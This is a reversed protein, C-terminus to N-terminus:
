SFCLKACFIYVLSYLNLCANRCKLNCYFLAIQKHFSHNSGIFFSLIYTKTIVSFRFLIFVTQIKQLNKTMMQLLKKRFFLNKLFQYVYLFCFNSSKKIEIKLHCKFNLKSFFYTCIGNCLNALLLFVFCFMSLRNSHLYCLMNQVMNWLFSAIKKYIVTAKETYKSLPKSMFSYNLCIQCDYYYLCVTCCSKFFIVM